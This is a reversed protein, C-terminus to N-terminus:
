KGSEERGVLGDQSTFSIPLPRSVQPQFGDKLPTNAGKRPEMDGNRFCPILGKCVEGAWVRQLEM